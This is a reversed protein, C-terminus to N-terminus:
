KDGLPIPVESLRASRHDRGRRQEAPTQPLKDFALYGRHETDLSDFRLSAAELAEDRTIRGNLNVDMAAVPEPFGLLDFRAAGRPRQGAFTSGIPHYTSGEGDGGGGEDGGGGGGGHGGSWGGGGGGHRHGGGHGDRGHRGGGGGGVDIWDGGHVEPAVDKEYADLEASDVVGDHDADLRDVFHIFDVTFETVTLKGDHNADAQAFWQASPYPADAPAHFPEGSPAIFTQRGDWTRHPPEAPLPPASAAQALAALLLGIAM